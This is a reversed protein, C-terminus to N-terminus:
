IPLSVGMRLLKKEVLKKIIESAQQSTKGLKSTINDIVEQLTLWQRIASKEIIFLLVEFEEESLIYKTRELLQKKLSGLDEEIEHWKIKVTSGLSLNNLCEITEDTIEKLAKNLLTADEGAEKLVDLMKAINAQYTKIYDIREQCLDRLKDNLRNLSTILSSLEDLIDWAARNFEDIGKTKESLSQGNQCISEYKNSIEEIEFNIDEMKSIESKYGEFFIKFNNAKVLVVNKASIFTKEKSILNNIIDLSTRIKQSYEKLTKYLENFFSKIDELSLFAMLPAKIPTTQCSKLSSFIAKSLKYPDAINYKTLYANIENYLNQSDNIRNLIEKCKNIIEEKKTKIQEFIRKEIDYVKFNFYSAERPSKRFYFYKPYGEYKGKVSYIKNELIDVEKEIEEYTYVKSLRKKVNEELELLTNYEEIDRLTYKKESYKNYEELLRNLLAEADKFYQDIEKILEMGRTFAAYMTPYLTDNFYKLLANILYFLRARLEENWEIETNERQSWLQRVFNDFDELMIVKHDREKSVCIHSYDWFKKRIEEVNKCYTQFEKFIKQELDKPDVLKIHDKEIVILGKSELIPLYVQEILDKNQALVIFNYKIEEISNIGKKVLEMIRQEVPTLTVELTGDKNEKIFGNIVLDRHFIELDERKEIDFPCFPTKTGYITFSRLKKVHEYISQFRLPHEITELYYIMADALAKDKEGSPKILDTILIGQNKCKEIWRNFLGFFDIEHYILELKGRLIKENVKINREYALSLAILQQARITKLQICLVRPMDILEKSADEDINGVYLLLLLDVKEKRLIEKINEIDTMNIGITSVYIATSVKTEIGPQLFCELIYANPVGSIKFEKSSNIVKIFGDRLARNMDAFNKIAERWLGTRKQRDEIFDIQSIIPSPFLQIALEKSLMFRTEEKIFELHSELKRKLFKVDEEDIKVDEFAEFHRVIEDDDKPVVLLPYLNGREDIEYHIFEEYFKDLPIRNHVLYISKEIPKLSDIVSIIERGEKLPLLRSITKSIGIKSLEQNIIEVLNHIQNSKIDLRKELEQLSFPKLEGALLKFLKLCKEGYSKINLLAKEIKILLDNDICSTTEGFVSIERERLTNLFIEYNIVELKDDLSAVNLLEGIFQIMPRLNRQSITAIGNLIGASKIPLPTPLKGDYCYKLIDILFQIAEERSIQPLDIINAGIRSSISGFIEKLEVDEKLRNYAYPTCAIFFHVCGQFEGGTHIIKLQGNILEKLGSLFKKQVEAPHILIEEFEDIFIYIRKKVEAAFHNQLTKTIYFYPDEHATEDPFQSYDENRYKLEDKISYFIVTLLTVSEPPNTPLLVSAKSLKNIITSTSVLYAIDGNSEVEPKIYREFADTKGEGWEARIITVTLTTSEKAKKLVQKLRQEIPERSPIKAFKFGAFPVPHIPPSRIYKSTYENM